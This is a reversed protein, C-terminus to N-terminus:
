NKSQMCVCVCLLLSVAKPHPLNVNYKVCKYLFQYSFVVLLPTSVEDLTRGSFVTILFQSPGIVVGRNGQDDLALAYPPLFADPYVTDAANKLLRYSNTSDYHVLSGDASISYLSKGNPHYLIHNVTKLHEEVELKLSTTALSFIRVAGSEFGCALEPLSPHCSVTTPAETPSQFDYAQHFNDLDWLKITKDL